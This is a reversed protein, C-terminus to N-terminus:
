TSLSALLGKWAVRQIEVLVVRGDTSYVGVDAHYVLFSLSTGSPITNDKSWLDFANQLGITDSVSSIDM